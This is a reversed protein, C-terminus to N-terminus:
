TRNRRLEDRMRGYTEEDIEGRAYRQRLLSEATDEGPGGRAAWGGRGALFWVGVVLLVLVLLWFIMM